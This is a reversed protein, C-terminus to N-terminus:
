TLTGRMVGCKQLQTDIHWCGLVSKPRIRSELEHDCIRMKSPNRLAHHFNERAHLGLFFGCQAIDAGLILDRIFLPFRVTRNM